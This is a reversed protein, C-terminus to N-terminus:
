SAQFGLLQRTLAGTGLTMEKLATAFSEDTVQLPDSDQADEAAILAAKRVLEEIFAPSAGRTKAILHPLDKVGWTLGRGYVEFLRRRCDDDPLPLEIAQDVRGPRNILAPEIADPRNTTLLFLVASDRSVLDMENLLQHLATTQFSKERDAAILDVDELILVTPALVQALRCCERINWLQDGSALITTVGPLMQSISRATISKGTGPSGHLLLGRKLSRKSNRLKDAHAFFRLTNREILQWTETPLVIDAPEVRPLDHFQLQVSGASYGYETDIGKPGELSLVKERFVNHASMLRRLEKLAASAGEQSKAMVQVQMMGSGGAGFAIAVPNEPPSLLWLANRRFSRREDVGIDVEEYNLTATQGEGAQILPIIRQGNHGICEATVGTSKAYTEVAVEFNPLDFQSVDRSLIPLRRATVGFHKRLRRHLRRTNLNGVSASISIGVFLALLFVAGLIIGVIQDDQRHQAIQLM